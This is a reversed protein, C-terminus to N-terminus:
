EGSAAEVATIFGDGDKDLAQFQQRDGPFEARSLEGDSNADMPTFWAPAAVKAVPDGVTEVASTPKDLQHHVIAGRALVIRVATPIETEDLAGDQNRDLESLLVPLRRQERLTLRRDNDADILRLLPQGDIAGGVAIQDPQNYPSNDTNNEMASLEYHESGLHVSLADDSRRVADQKVGSLSILELGSQKGFRVALRLDPPGASIRETDLENAIPGLRKKWAGADDIVTTLRISAPPGRRLPRGRRRMEDVTVIGDQDIDAAALKATAAKVEAASLARDEDDDLIGLLPAHSVRQWSRAPSLETIVPGAPWQNLLTLLDRRDVNSGAAAIYNTLRSRLTPTDRTRPKTAAPNLLSSDVLKGFKTVADSVASGAERIQKEAPAQRIVQDIWGEYGVRFAVDNIFVDYEIVRAAGPGTILVRLKSAAPDDVGPRPAAATQRLPHYDLLPDDVPSNALTLTSIIATSPM